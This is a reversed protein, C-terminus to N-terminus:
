GRGEERGEVGKETTITTLQERGMDVVVNGAKDVWRAGCHKIRRGTALWLAVYVESVCEGWCFVKVRGDGEGSGEGWVVGANEGGSVGGGDNGKPKDTGGGSGDNSHIERECRVESEDWLGRGGEEFVAVMDWGGAGGGVFKDLFAWM